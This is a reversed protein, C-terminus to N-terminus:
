DLTLEVFSEPNAPTATVEPTVESVTVKVKAAERAVISPLKPKDAKAVPTAGKRIIGTKGRGSTFNAFCGLLALGDYWDGAIEQPNWEGTESDFVAKVFEPIDLRTGIVYIVEEKKVTATAGTAKLAEAENVLENVINNVSDVFESSIPFNM